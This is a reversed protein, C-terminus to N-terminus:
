GGALPQLIHVPFDEQIADNPKLIRGEMAVTIGQAESIKLYTLLDKATAGDPIEVEIGQSHRYGHFQKALNGYLKVRIKMRQNGMYTLPLMM